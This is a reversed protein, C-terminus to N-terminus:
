GARFEWNGLDMVIDDWFSMATIPAMPAWPPDTM